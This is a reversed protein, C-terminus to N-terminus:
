AAKKPRIVPELRGERTHVAEDLSVWKETTEIIPCFSTHEVGAM